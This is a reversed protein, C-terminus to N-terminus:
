EKDFLIIVYKDFYKTVKISINRKNETIKSNQNPFIIPLEISNNLM